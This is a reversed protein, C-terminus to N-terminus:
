KNSWQDITCRLYKRCFRLFKPHARAEQILPSIADRKCVSRIAQQRFKKTTQLHPLLVQYVRGIEADSLTQNKLFGEALSEVAVAFAKTSGPPKTLRQSRHLLRTENALSVLCNFM